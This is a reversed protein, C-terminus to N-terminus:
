RPGARRLTTVRVGLEGEVDVLEGEAWIEGGVRLAVPSAGLRGLTLVAGPGLGALEDGRLVLRGLEAIVEIPAAALVAGVDVARTATGGGSQEDMGVEEKRHGDVLGGRAQQAAPRLAEELTVGGDEGLRATAAHTGVFVRVPRARGGAVGGPEGDFVVADGPALGALEGASLRTRALEIRAEVELAGLALGETAPAEALWSEPLEIRAWGAAAGANVDVALAVSVGGESALAGAGPAGLSVSFPAGFAHLVSAALGAVVGREALGLRALPMGPRSAGGLALAVLRRALGGDIVLRGAGAARTLGLVVRDVDDVGEAHRVPAAGVAHIGERAVVVPGLEGLPAELKTPLGALVRAARTLARAARASVRPLDRPDLDVIRPRTPDTV